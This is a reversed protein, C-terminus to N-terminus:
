DRGINRSALEDRGEEILVAGLRQIKFTRKISPRVVEVPLVDEGLIKNLVKV